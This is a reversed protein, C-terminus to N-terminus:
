SGYLWPRNVIKIRTAHRNAFEGMGYGYDYAIAVEDGSFAVTPYCIRLCGPSRPYLSPDPPQRYGEASRLVEPRLPPEVRTRDDM